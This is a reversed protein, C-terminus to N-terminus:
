KRFLGKSKPYCLDQHAYWWKSMGEVRRKDPKLTHPEPLALDTRLTVLEKNIMMQSQKTRIFKKTAKDSAEFWAKISKHQQCVKKAKAPSLISPVDDIADGLLTQLMIMKSVSVGKLKEALKADIYRPEPKFSSDYMRVGNKLAQYGDKDKCGGIVDYGVESYQEAASAWVDDAEYKKQQVYVLGLDTLLKRLNPLSDYVDGRDEEADEPVSSAKKESRGAKYNPYVDYRFVKSGDFAVLVHTCKTSVADKLILTVVAQPLVEPMPRSSKVTHWCRHLYWNGDVVFIRGKAM